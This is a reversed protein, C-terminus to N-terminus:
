ICIECDEHGCGRGGHSQGWKDAKELDKQLQERQQQRLRWHDPNLIKITYDADVYENPQLMM